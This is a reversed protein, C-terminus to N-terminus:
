RCFSFCCGKQIHFGSQTLFYYQFLNKPRILLGSFQEFIFQYCELINQSIGFGSVKGVVKRLGTGLGRDYFVVQRATRNELMKFLKYINTDNGEGGEQGTGDSMVVINKRPM